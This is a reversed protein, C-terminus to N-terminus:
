GPWAAEERPVCKAKEEGGCKNCKAGAPFLPIKYKDATLGAPRQGSNVYGPIM